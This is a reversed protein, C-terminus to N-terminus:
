NVIELNNKMEEIMEGDGTQEYCYLLLLCKLQSAHLQQLVAASRDLLQQIVGETECSSTFLLTDYGKFLSVLIEAEAEPTDGKQSLLEVCLQKLQENLETLENVYVPAGDEGYERLKKVLSSVSNCLPNEM